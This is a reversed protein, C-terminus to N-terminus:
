RPAPAEAPAGASGAGSGAEDASAAKVGAEVGKKIKKVAPAAKDEIGKRMDQAEDTSWIASVHGFFTRKGLPVTAGLFVLTVVIALWILSRIMASM